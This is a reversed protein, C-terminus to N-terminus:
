IGISKLYDRSVTVSELATSKRTVDTETIVWGGFGAESLVEFIAPFDVCGEGLEAFVHHETFTRYDWKEIRGRFMVTEHIDKLHLTKIRDAYDRCFGPVDAGAWALHGTDPGLFVLSPDTLSLLRDIEERTEIVSGVHNHFCSRVGETLTIAGVENLAEAFRGFEGDSLADRAGVHGAVQRRTQGGATGYDFGGAAVYLETCGVERMFRALCGARELIQARQDEEWFDAGLYGPAPRLGHRAYLDTTERTSRGGNPGAPAGEYGARAIEALVQEESQRGDTAFQNWTIQGCGVYIQAM